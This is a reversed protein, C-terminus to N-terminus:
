RPQLEIKLKKFEQDHVVAVVLFSWDSGDLLNTLKAEVHLYDAVDTFDYFGDGPVVLGTIHFSGSGVWMPTWNGDSGPVSLTVIARPEVSKLSWTGDPNHRVFDGRGSTAVNLRLQGDPSFAEYSGTRDPNFHVVIAGQGSAAQVPASFIFATAVILAVALRQRTKTQFTKLTQLLDKMYEANKNNIANPGGLATAACSDGAM